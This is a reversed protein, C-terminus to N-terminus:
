LPDIQTWNGQGDLLGYSLNTNEYPSDQYISASYLNSSTLEIDAKINLWGDDYTAECNDPGVIYHGTESNALIKVDFPTYSSTPFSKALFNIIM